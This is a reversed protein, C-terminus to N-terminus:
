RRDQALGSEEACVPLKRGGPLQVRESARNVYLNFIAFPASLDDKVMDSGLKTRRDSLQDIDAQVFFVKEPDLSKLYQDFIRGSLSEDLPMAKYHYRSLLEAAMHAARAEQPEPALAAPFPRESGLSAGQAATVFAFVLWLLKSKM